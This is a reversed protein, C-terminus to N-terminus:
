SRHSIKSEKASKSASPWSLPEAVQVLGPDLELCFPRYPFGRKQLGSIVCSRSHHGRAERSRRQLSRLAARLRAMIPELERPTMDLGADRIITQRPVYVGTREALIWLCASENSGLGSIAKKKGHFTLSKQNLVLIPRPAPENRLASQIELDLRCVDRYMKYLRDRHNTRTRGPDPITSSDLSQGLDFSSKPVCKGLAALTPGVAPLKRLRVLASHEELSIWSRL